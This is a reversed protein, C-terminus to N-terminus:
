QIHSSNGIIFKVILLIIVWTFLNTYDLSRMHGTIGTIPPTPTASTAANTTITSAVNMMLQTRENSNEDTNNGENSNEDSNNETTRAGVAAAESRILRIISRPSLAITQDIIEMPISRM